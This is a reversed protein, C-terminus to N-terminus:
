GRGEVGEKFLRFGGEDAERVKRRERRAEYWELTRGGSHRIQKALDTM